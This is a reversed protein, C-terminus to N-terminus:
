WPSFRTLAPRRGECPAIQAAIVPRPITEGRRLKDLRPTAGVVM